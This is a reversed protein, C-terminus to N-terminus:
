RCRVAPTPGARPRCTGSRSGSPTLRMLSSSVWSSSCAARVSSPRFLSFLIVIMAHPPSRSRMQGVNIRDVVAAADPMSALTKKVNQPSNVNTFGPTRMVPSLQICFISETIFGPFGDFALSLRYWKAPAPGPM